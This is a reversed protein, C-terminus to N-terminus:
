VRDIGITGVLLCRATKKRGHMHLGLRRATRIPAPQFRYAVACDLQIVHVMLRPPPLPNKHRM